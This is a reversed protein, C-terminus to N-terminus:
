LLRSDHFSSFVDKQLCLVIEVVTISAPARARPRACVPRIARARARPPVPARTPARARATKINSHASTEFFPSRQGKDRTGCIALARAHPLSLTHTRAGRAAHQCKSANVDLFFQRANGRTMRGLFPAPAGLFIPSRKTSQLPFSRVVDMIWPGHVMFCPGHAMIWPGFGMAWPCNDMSWPGYPGHDIVWLGHVMTWSGHDM